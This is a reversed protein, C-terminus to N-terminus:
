RQSKRHARAPRKPQMTRYEFLWGMRIQGVIYRAQMNQLWAAAVPRGWRAHWISKGKDALDCVQKVLTIRKGCRESMKIENKM